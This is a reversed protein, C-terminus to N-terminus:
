AQGLSKALRYLVVILQERTSLDQWMYNPLGNIEGGGTIIGANVAWERAEKSWDGCDNDQLEARYQTMFEKWQDYTVVEEVESEAMSAYDPIGYGRIYRGDVQITRYAVAEGKNGEIITLVTGNVKAVIGVHNPAGTCDGM